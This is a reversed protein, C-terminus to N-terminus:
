TGGLFDYRFNAVQDGESITYVKPCNICLFILLNQNIKLQVKKNNWCLKIKCGIFEFFGMKELNQHPKRKIFIKLFIVCNLFQM